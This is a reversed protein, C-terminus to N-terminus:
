AKRQDPTFVKPLLVGDWNCAAIMDYRAAYSSTDTTEVFPQENPLTLTHNPAASLRLATEDLFLVNRKDVHQLKRRLQAIEECLFYSV